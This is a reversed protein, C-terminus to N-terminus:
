MMLGKKGWGRTTSVFLLPDLIKGGLNLVIPCHDSYERPLALVSANPWRGLFSSGLLIRDLKSMNDGRSSLFTFRRGGMNLEHLDNALIFDNFDDSSIQCFDSNFREEKARVANFDGLVIWMGDQQQILNTIDVWLQKKGDVSHPAYVNVIFVDEMVGVMSGHIVLLGNGRIVNIKRFFSVEWICFLGGSRGRANIGECDFLSNDWFSSVPIRNVEEFQTEQIAFFKIHNERKLRKLWLHKDVGGIGRVNLSVLSM